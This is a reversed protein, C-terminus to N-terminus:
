ADELVSMWVDVENDSVVRVTDNAGLLVKGQIIEVSGGVPIKVDKALYALTVPTGASDTIYVDCTSTLAGDTNAVNLGIVVDTTATSTAVATATTVNSQYYRNFAM